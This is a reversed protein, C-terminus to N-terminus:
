QRVSERSRERRGYDWGFRPCMANEKANTKVILVERIVKEKREKVM